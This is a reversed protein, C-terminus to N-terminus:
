VAPGALRADIARLAALAGEAISVHGEPVRPERPNIRIIRGRYRAAERESFLRVNPVATGAGCEVVVLRAGKASMARELWAQVRAHQANVRTADFGSDGFMLVNPRAPAGCAPCVPTPGTSRLSDSDWAVRADRAAYIGVGCESMCQLFFLSGHGEMIRDEVFGARQLHDDINSTVAFYGDRAREGWRRIIAFGEHPPTARYLDLRHGFYGWILTPDLTLWKPAALSQYNLGAKAYPPYERYFGQTGRYDPLGSDVGMGAGSTFLVASAAGIAEAAAAFPDSPSDARPAPHMPANM